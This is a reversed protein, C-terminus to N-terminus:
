FDIKEVRVYPVELWDTFGSWADDIIEILRSSEEKSIRGQKWGNAAIKRLMQPVREASKIYGDIPMPASTQTNGPESESRAIGDHLAIDMQYAANEMERYFEFNLEPNHQIAYLAKVVLEVGGGGSAENASNMVRQWGRWKLIDEDTMHKKYGFSMSDGHGPVSLDPQFHYVFVHDMDNGGEDVGVVRYRYRPRLDTQSEHDSFYYDYIKDVIEDESLGTPPRYPTHGLIINRYIGRIVARPDEARLIEGHISREQEIEFLRM